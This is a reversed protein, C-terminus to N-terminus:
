RMDKRVVEFGRSEQRLGRLRDHVVIVTLATLTGLLNNLLDRQTDFFYSTHPKLMGRDEGLLLYSAYEMIEHLAGFGMMFMLTAVRAPWVRGALYIRFFRELVFAIAFAFYFHVYIDFSWPLPSRQYYGFTGLMHFLIAIAFLAYYFPILHLKWRLFYVGWLLPLVFLPAVHYAPVSGVFALIVILVSAITAIIAYPNM